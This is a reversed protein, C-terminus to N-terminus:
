SEFLLRALLRLARGRHSYIDKDAGSMVAMSIEGSQRDFTPYFIPDYGFGEEGRPGAGIVGHCQASVILDREEWAVSTFAEFEHSALREEVQARQSATLGCVALACHFAAGRDEPPTNQLEELVRCYRDEDSGEVYRASYIGPAGGLADVCIGSDDAISLLGTRSIGARAKLLANGAFSDADEIIEPGRVGRNALEWASLSTWEIMPALREFEEVKHQNGTVLLMQTVVSM